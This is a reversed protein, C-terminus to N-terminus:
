EYIGTYVNRGKVFTAVVEYKDDLVVLDADKGVEISGKHTDLGVQRAPNITLTPLLAELSASTAKMANLLAMDMTLCSGALSGVSGDNNQLRVQGDRMIVPLDGLHYLGDALGSASICDTILLVKDSPKARFVLGILDPHVHIHDCILEVALEDLILGAGPVGPERHHLPNMGNFLHTIQSAGLEVAQRVLEFSAASHGISVTMGQDVAYRIMEMAGPMEPAITILAITDGSCEQYLKLADLSPDCIHAPNQAGCRQTNLFPGELHVGAVSAGNTGNDMAKKIATLAQKIAEPAATLTTALLTTTGKSAHYVCMGDIDEPRGSMVDFGGGGHVHVDIFGPILHKGELDIIIVGTKLSAEKIDVKYQTDVEEIIGNNVRLFGQEITRNPTYIRANIFLLEKGHNSTM